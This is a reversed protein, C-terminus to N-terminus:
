RRIKEYLGKMTEALGDMQSKIEGIRKALMERTQGMREMNKELHNIADKIEMVINTSAGVSVAAKNKKSPNAYLFIGAGVPMLMEGSADPYKELTERARMHEMISADLMRLNDELYGIQERYTEMLYEAQLIQKEADETM